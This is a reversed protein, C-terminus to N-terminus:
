QPGLQIWHDAARQRQRLRDDGAGVRAGVSRGCAVLLDTAERVTSDLDAHAAIMTFPGQELGTAAAVFRQLRALGLLNGLAREIYYQNRYFANMRLRDGDLQFSVYSLCPFGGRSRDRGPAYVPMEYIFRRPADLDLERQLTRIVYEVQNTPADADTRLPYDILRQFYLGSRNNADLRRLRPVLRRYGQYLAERDASAEALAQPFLTNAVTAVPHRGTVALLRDLAAVTTHDILAPDPDGVDVMLNFTQRGHELLYEVAALWATSLTQGTIITSM